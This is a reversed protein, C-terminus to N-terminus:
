EPPASAYALRLAGDLNSIDAHLFARASAGDDNARNWKRPSFWDGFSGGLAGTKEGVYGPLRRGGDIRSLIDRVERLADPNQGPGSNMLQYLRAVEAAFPHEAM